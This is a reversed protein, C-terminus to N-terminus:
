DNRNSPDSSKSPHRRRRHSSESRAQRQEEQDEKEGKGRWKGSTKGKKCKGGHAYAAKGKAKGKKGKKGVKKDFRQDGRRSVQGLFSMCKSVHPLWNKMEKQRSAPLTPVGGGFVASFCLRKMADFDDHLLHQTPANPCVSQKVPLELAEVSAAAVEEVDYLLRAGEIPGLSCLACPLMAKAWPKRDKDVLPQWALLNVSGRSKGVQTFFPPGHKGKWEQWDLAFVRVRYEWLRDQVISLEEEFDRKCIGAGGCAVVTAVNLEVMNYLPKRLQLGICCVNFHQTAVSKLPGMSEVMSTRVLFLQGMKSGLDRVLYREWQRGPGKSGRGKSARMACAAAEAFNDVHNVRRISDVLSSPCNQLMLIQAPSTMIDDLVMMEWWADAFDYQLAFSVSQIGITGVDGRMSHMVKSASKSGSHVFPEDSLGDGHGDASYNGDDSNRDQGDDDTRRRKEKGRTRNSRDNRDTAGRDPERDSEASMKELSPFKPPQLCVGAPSADDSHYRYKDPGDGRSSAADAVSSRGSGSGRVGDCRRQYELISAMSVAHWTEPVSGPYISSGDPM